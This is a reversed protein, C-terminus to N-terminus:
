YTTHKTSYWDEHWERLENKAEQLAGLLTFYNADRGTCRAILPEEGAVEAVSVFSILKGSKARELMDELLKVVGEDAKREVPELKRVNDTV